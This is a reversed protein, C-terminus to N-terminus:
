KIGYQEQKDVLYNFIRDYEKEKNKMKELYKKRERDRYLENAAENGFINISILNYYTNDFTPFATRLLWDIAEAPTRNGSLVMNKAVQIFGQWIKRCETQQCESIEDFYKQKWDAENDLKLALMEDSYMKLRTRERCTSFPLQHANKIDSESPELYLDNLVEIRSQILKNRAIKYTESRDEQKFMCHRYFFEAFNHGRNEIELLFGDFILLRHDEMKM